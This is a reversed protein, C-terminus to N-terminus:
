SLLNDLERRFEEKAPAAQRYIEEYKEFDLTRLNRLDPKIYIDPPQRKLKEEIIAHGMVRFTRFISDFFAPTVHTRTQLTGTVDIAIIASCDNGLLDFPLPNVAGGDVLLRDDHEVPSFVGPLAMSARVAPLLEGSGFAVQEGSWYDTAVVQLPIRLEEFRSQRIAKHLFGMFHDANILGGKGLEPDILEIWEFIKLKVLAHELEKNEMRILSEVLDKIEQASHGACYLAGLIAGISTGSMRHPTVGLEDLVELMLVHALGRAGGGGLALGFRDSDPKTTATSHSSNRTQTM